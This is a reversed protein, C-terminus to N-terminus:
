PTHGLYQSRIQLLSAEPLKLIEKIALRALANRNITQSNDFADVLKILLQTPNKPIIWTTDKPLPETGYDFTDYDEDNRPDCFMIFQANPLALNKVSNDNLSEAM